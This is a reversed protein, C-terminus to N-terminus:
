PRSQSEYNPYFLGHFSRVIQIGNRILQVKVHHKDEWSSITDELLVVGWTVLSPNHQLPELVMSIFEMLHGSWTVRWIKFRHLVNPINHLPPESSLCWCTRIDRSLTVAASVNLVVQRWDHVLFKHCGHGHSNCSNQLGFSACRTM